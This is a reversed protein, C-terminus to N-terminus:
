FKLGGLGSASAHASLVNAAQSTELLLRAERLWDAVVKRPMGQLQNIYRVAQELDGQEIYYSAFDLLRFTDLTDPDIEQNPLPTSPTRQPFILLSQLFSLLYKALGSGSEDVMSVRRCVRNVDEWRQRLAEETQVGQILAKEPISKVVADVFANDEAADTVAVIQNALPASITDGSAITRKLNECALWLEQAKQVQKEMGARGEVASQVGKLTALAGVLKQHYQNQEQIRVDQERQQLQKDFELEQQRLVDALHDSHAAAQRRLQVRMEKESERMVEEMKKELDVAFVGEKRELERNIADVTDQELETKQKEIAEQLRRQELAQQEALQHQLQEIRRHGHAILSNLEDETLKKGKEGLKVEPMLSRLEKTFQEKGEQILDHYEKLINSETQATVVEATATDLDYTMDKLHKAADTITPSTGLRPKKEQSDAIVVQLKELELKAAQAYDDAVKLAQIKAEAAEVVRTWQARKDATDSQPEDMAEKLRDRHEETLVVAKKQADIADQTLQASSATITDIITEFAALDAADDIEQEIMKEHLEKARQEEERERRLRELRSEEEATRLEASEKDKDSGVVEAPNDQAVPGTKESVVEKVEQKTDQFLLAPMQSPSTTKLAPLGEFITDDDKFLYPSIGLLIPWNSEVQKRFEPNARGYAVAGVFTGGTVLVSGALFKLFRRGSRRPPLPPQPPPAETKTCLQCRAPVKLSRGAFSCACKIKSSTQTTTRWM